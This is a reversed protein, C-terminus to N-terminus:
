AVSLSAQVAAVLREASLGHADELYAQSGSRGAPMREVGARVLRCPLGREAIVEAVLSGLGGQRYHAEVAVALPVQALAEALDEEPAPNFSSVVVVTAGIGVEALRQAAGVAEHAISGIAVLAVDTGESLLEARGLAIMARVVNPLPTENM